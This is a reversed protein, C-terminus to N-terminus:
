EWPAAEKLGNTAAVKRVWLLCLLMVGLNVMARVPLNVDLGGASSVHAFNFVSNSIAHAIWPGWLSGTKLYLYGYFLGVLFQPVSNFVISMAIEGGTQIEGLQYYKLVWPLHWIGFMFATFVTTGKFGFKLRGLRGMVGRFLGEEM